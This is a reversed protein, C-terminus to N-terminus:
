FDQQLRMAFRSTLTVPLPFLGLAPRYPYNVRVEVASGPIEVLESTVARGVDCPMGVGDLIVEAHARSAELVLAGPTETDPEIIAAGVRAGDRAARVVNHYRSVMWAIDIIGSLLIALVPLWLAFEIAAGGRRQRRM